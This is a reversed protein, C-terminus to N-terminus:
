GATLGKVIGLGSLAGFVVYLGQSVRTFVM